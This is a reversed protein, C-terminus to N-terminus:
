PAIRVRYYRSGGPPAGGTLTFDDTFSQTSVAGYPSLDTENTLARVIDTYTGRAGNNTTANRYQVRYRSGGVSPWALSVRGNTLRLWDTIQLVSAANTPNTGAYYEQLNSQGDADNFM